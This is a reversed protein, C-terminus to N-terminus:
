SCLDPETKELEIRRHAQGKIAAEELTATRQIDGGPARGLGRGKARTGDMATGEELSPPADRKGPASGRWPDRTKGPSRQRWLARSRTRVVRLLERSGIGTASRLAAPKPGGTVALSRRGGSSRARGAGKM